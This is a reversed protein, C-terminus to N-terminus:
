INPNLINEYNPNTSNNGELFPYCKQIDEKSLSKVWEDSVEDTSTQKTVGIMLWRREYSTCFWCRFRVFMRGGSISDM